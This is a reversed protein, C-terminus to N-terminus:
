KEADGEGWSGGSPIVTIHSGAQIWDVGDRRYIDISRLPMSHTKGHADEYEYRAVYYVIAIDQHVQIEHDLLEYSKGKFSQLSKEANAMYAEIGREIGTSPGLFGIWDNAHTEKLAKRDQRLFAQFISHIHALIKESDEQEVAAM